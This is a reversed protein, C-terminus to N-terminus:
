HRLNGHRPGRHFPLHLEASQAHSRETGPRYMLIALPGIVLLVWALSIKFISVAAFTVLIISLDTLKQFQRRGLQLTVVSLMGVAAAAIGLLFKGVLPNHPRDSWLVGLVMVIVAGPIMLGATAAIAGPIGRLNDGVIVAINVSNLGPLTESIELTALFDEDTLWKSGGVVYEREYAVVGGGFSVAGAMFFLKFLDFLAVKKAAPTSESATSSPPM